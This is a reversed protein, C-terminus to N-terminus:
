RSWLGHTNWWELCRERKCDAGVMMNVTGCCMLQEKNAERQERQMVM